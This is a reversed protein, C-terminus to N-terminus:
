VLFLRNTTRRVAARWSSGKWLCRALWRARPVSATWVRELPFGEAGGLSSVARYRAGRGRLDAAAGAYVPRRGLVYPGLLALPDLQHDAAPSVFLCYGGPASPLDAEFLPKREAVMAMALVRRTLREDDIPCWSASDKSPKMGQFPNTTVLDVALVSWGARAALGSLNCTQTGSSSTARAARQSGSPCTIDAPRRM